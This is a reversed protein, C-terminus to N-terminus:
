RVLDKIEDFTFKRKFMESTSIIEQIKNPILIDLFMIYIVYEIAWILEQLSDDKAIVKNSSSYHTYYNRTNAFVKAFLFYDEQTIKLNIVKAFRHYVDMLRDRLSVENLFGLKTRYRDVHLAAYPNEIICELLKQNLPKWVEKSIIGTNYRMRHLAEFVQANSMFWPVRGGEEGDERDPYPNILLNIPAALKRYNAMWNEIIQSSDAIFSEFSILQCSYSRGGWFINKNYLYPWVSIRKKGKWCGVSLIKWPETPTAILSFLHGLPIIVDKIYCKFNMGGPNGRVRIKKEFDGKKWAWPFRALNAKSVLKWRSEISFNYKNTGFYIDAIKNPHKNKRLGRRSMRCGSWVPLEDFQISIHDFVIDEICKFHDGFFVYEPFVSNSRKSVKGSVEIANTCNFLTIKQGDRAEMEIIPYSYKEFTLPKSLYAINNNQIILTAPFWKCKPVRGRGTFIRQTVKKLLKKWIHKSNPM